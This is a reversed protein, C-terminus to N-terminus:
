IKQWEALKLKNAYSFSKTHDNIWREGNLYLIAKTPARLSRSDLFRKDDQKTSYIEARFYQEKRVVTGFEDKGEPVRLIVFQHFGKSVPQIGEIFDIICNLEIKM